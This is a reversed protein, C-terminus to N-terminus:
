NSFDHPFYVDRGDEAEILGYVKDNHSPVLRTSPLYKQQSLYVSKKVKGTAM